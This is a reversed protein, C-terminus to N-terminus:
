EYPFSKLTRVFRTFMSQKRLHDQYTEQSVVPSCVIPMEKGHQKNRFLPINCLLSTRVTVVYNCTDQEQISVLRDEGSM